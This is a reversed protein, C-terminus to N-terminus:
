TRREVNAARGESSGRRALWIGGLALAGGLAQLPVLEEGLLPWAILAAAVPQVLLSVSAFSAPLHALAYTILGQGAIQCVVALGVLLLWGEGSTPLLAEGFLRSAILLMTCASPIMWSLVTATSHRARLRKVSLLYGAYFIATVLGLADGLRSGTETDGSSRVVLVVGGLACAMGVAFIGRLREKFWLWAVLAVFLPACNTFLTANAVSTLRISWHWFGLDAAFFLGPVLLLLAERGRFAPTADSGRRRQLRACVLFFPWALALRWFAMMSPGLQAGKGLKVFIPGWAIGIAGLVLCVIARRQRGETAHEPPPDPM